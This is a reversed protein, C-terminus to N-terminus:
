VTHSQPQPTSNTNDPQISTTGKKYQKARHILHAKQITHSYPQLIRITNHKQIDQPIKVESSLGHITVPNYKETLCGLCNNPNCHATPEAEKEMGELKGTM